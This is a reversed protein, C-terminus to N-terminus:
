VRPPGPPDNPLEGSADGCGCADARAAALRAAIHWAAPSALDATEFKLREDPPHMQHVRHTVTELAQLLQEIPEDEMGCQELKRCADVLADAAQSFRHAAETKLREDM